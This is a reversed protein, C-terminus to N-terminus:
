LGTKHHARKTRYMAEDAFHMLAGADGADDPFLALGISADVILDMGNILHPRLLAQTIREIAEQAEERGCLDEAILLFEDGGLRAVTDAARLTEKLRSAVECLVADGAAHGFVDNVEKFNDLDVFILALHTGRRPVQLMAHKLRELALERNGVGTLPDNFALYKLRRESDIRATIDRNISIVGVINHKRDELPVVASEAYGIRGDKRRLRVEGTWHGQLLVAEMVDQKFSAVDEPLYLTSAPKGVIERRSWGYLKEAGVNWDLVNGDMGVVVVADFLFDFAKARQKLLM